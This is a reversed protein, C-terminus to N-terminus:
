NYRYPITVKPDNRWLWGYIPREGMHTPGSPQEPPADQGPLKTIVPVGINMGPAAWAPPFVVTVSMQSLGPALVFGALPAFFEVEYSRPDGNVPRLVQRTHFRLVQSGSPIRVDAVRFEKIAARVEKMIPEQDAPIEGITKLLEVFQEGRGDRKRFETRKGTSVVRVEASSEESPFPLVLRVDQETPNEVVLVGNVNAVDYSDQAFGRHPAISEVDM